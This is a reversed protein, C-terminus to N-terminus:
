DDHHWGSLVAQFSNRSESDARSERAERAPRPRRVATGSAAACEESQSDLNVSDSGTATTFAM